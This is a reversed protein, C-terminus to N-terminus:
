ASSGPASNQKRILRAIAETLEDAEVPKSIHVAFGAHLARDRDETRALATLAVAPVHGGADPPFARIRQILSYGDEDPMGIDSVVVDPRTTHFAALAAPVSAVASVRAGRELLIRTILDRADADDEVLLVNVDKLSAGNSSVSRPDVHVPGHALALPFSVTFSSGQDLGASEAHVTGGHLETLHRVIGLGLGLGGYRRTTSADAQRFREFVYPLFERSIGIGTDTVTIEAHAGRRRLAVQVIGDKPTFKVANSLLNWVIQQLRGPDGHVPGVTPDLADLIQVGKATAAPRASAIAAQVVPELQVIRMDLRLKGAVIRSVDLLDEILQAQAKASREITELGHHLEEPNDRGGRLLQSWGLIANLPTRLEHSVTALFEDKLRSAQEAQELANEAADKAGRLADASDRLHDAAVEARRAASALSATLTFLVISLIGGIAIVMLTYSGTSTADFGPGSRYLITWHRGPLAVTATKTFRPRHDAPAPSQHMLANADNADDGDFVTLSIDSALRKASFLDNLFDDARFPAYCFGALLSRRDQVSKPVHPLHYIPVYVLFGAQRDPDAEQLLTVKGSTAPEGTDRAREMAARRTPETFMDYGIALRNRPTLPELFIITHYEPRPDAPFIKFDDFGEKGRMRAIGGELQAPLLRASIGVGQIGPYHQELELREVYNGFKVRSIEGATAFLGAGGRLLNVYTDIRQNIASQTREVGNEFRLRDKAATSIAVYAAAAATIILSLALVLYAILLRPRTSTNRPAPM